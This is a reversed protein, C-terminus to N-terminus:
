PRLEAAPMARGSAPGLLQKAWPQFVKDLWTAALLTALLYLGGRVAFTLPSGSFWTVKGMLFLIPFHIIYIGYSVAGLPVLRQVLRQSAPALAVAPGFFFLLSAGYLACPIAYEAQWHQSAQWVGYLPLLQLVGALWRMGRGGVGAVQLVILAAYPLFGYDLGWNTNFAYAPAEWGRSFTLQHAGLWANLEGLLMTLPNLPELCLLLLLASVVRPWAVVQAPRVAALAWGLAWFALGILYQALAGHVGDPALLLAGAGALGALAAVVWPRLALVSLPIFALYYLVEYQLSWLPNNEFMVPEGWSQWFLLHYGVTKWGITFGSVVVGALVALAYMPYVRVLRRHLYDGIEARRLPRPYRRGIVYGSLLFFILVALHGPPNFAWAGTPVYRPDLHRQHYIAHHWAVTLAAVGRLAELNFNFDSRLLKAEM